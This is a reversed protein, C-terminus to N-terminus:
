QIHLCHCVELEHINSTLLPGPGTDIQWLLIGATNLASVKGDLTSVLVLRFFCYCGHLCCFFFELRVFLM